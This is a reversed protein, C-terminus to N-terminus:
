DCFATIVATPVEVKAFYALQESTYSTDLMEESLGSQTLTVKIKSVFMIDADRALLIKTAKGTRIKKLSQNLGVVFDASGLPDESLSLPGEQM